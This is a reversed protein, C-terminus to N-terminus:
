PSSPPLTFTSGPPPPSMSPPPISPGGLQPSVQAIITDEIMWQQRFHNNPDTILVYIWYIGFLGGTVWSLILYLIFSRDPIPLMRRPFNISVGSTSLAANLDMFFGDERREHKFFDKMSFYYVYWGAITGIFPLFALIAWLAASKETEDTRVERLTRDLNNLPIALDVNKKSALERAMNHLDEYLLIQRAFHTNRRRTLKYIMIAALIGVALFIIIEVLFFGAFAFLASSGSTSPPATLPILLFPVIFILAILIYPAIPVLIWAVSMVNDTEVRMRADRRLNELVVSM